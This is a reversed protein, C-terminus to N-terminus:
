LLHFITDLDLDRASLSVDCFCLLFLVIECFDLVNGASRSTSVNKKILVNVRRFKKKLELFSM